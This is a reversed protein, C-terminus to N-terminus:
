IGKRNVIVKLNKNLHVKTVEILYSLDAHNLYNCPGYLLILDGVQIGGKDAPSDQKVEIIKAFPPSDNTAEELIQIHEEEKKEKALRVEEREKEYKDIQMEAEERTESHYALM